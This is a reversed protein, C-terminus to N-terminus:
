WPLGDRRMLVYPEYNYNYETVRYPESKQYWLAYNTPGHGRQWKEHFMVVEKREVLRMLESKTSPYDDVGLEPAEKSMEFAPVIFVATGNLVMDQSEKSIKAFNLRLDSCLMFDVDMAMILSTRAFMRAVNRWLNFQRDFNDIILHMDIYRPYLPNSRYIEHLQELIALKKENDPLHLTVSIPGQILNIHKEYFVLSLLKGKYKEVLSSLVSLREITIMTTITIESEGPPPSM